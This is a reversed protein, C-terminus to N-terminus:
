KRSPGIDTRMRWLIRALRGPDDCCSLMGWQMEYLQQVLAADIGSVCRESYTQSLGKAVFCVASFYRANHHPSQGTGAHECLGPALNMEVIITEYSVWTLRLNGLVDLWVRSPATTAASSADEWASGNLLLVCYDIPITFFTACTWDYERSTIRRMMSNRLDVLNLRGQTTVVDCAETGRTLALHKLGADITADKTSNWFAVHAHHHHASGFSSYHLAQSTPMEICVRAEEDCTGRRRLGTIPDYPMSAPDFGSLAAYAVQGLAVLKIAIFAVLILWGGIALLLTANRKLDSSAERRKQEALEAKLRLEREALSQNRLRMEAAFARIDEVVPAEPPAAVQSSPESTAPAPTADTAGPKDM